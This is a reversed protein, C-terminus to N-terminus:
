GKEFPPAPTLEFIFFRHKLSSCTKENIILRSLVEYVEITMEEDL